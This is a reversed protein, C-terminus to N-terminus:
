NVGYLQWSNSSTVWVYIMNDDGLGFITAGVADANLGHTKTGAIIQIIKPQVM